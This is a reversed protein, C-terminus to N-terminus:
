RKSAIVKKFTYTQQPAQIMLVPQGESESPVIDLGAFPPSTLVLKQTGDTDQQQGLASKWEGADFLAGDKSQTIEASGM